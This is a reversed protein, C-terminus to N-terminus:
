SDKMLREVEYFWDKARSPSLNFEEGLVQWLEQGVGMGQRKLSQGRHWLWSIQSMGNIKRAKAQQAPQKWNSPRHVALAEDLSRCEGTRYRELADNLEMFADYPAPVGFRAAALFVELLLLGSGSEAGELYAHMLAAVEEAFPDCAEAEGRGEALGRLTNDQHSSPLEAPGLDDPENM